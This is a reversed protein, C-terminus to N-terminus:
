AKPRQLQLRTPMTVVVDKRGYMFEAGVACDDLRKIKYDHLNGRTVGHLSWIVLFSATTTIISTEGNDFKAPTFSLDSVCYRAVDQPKLTLRKPCEKLSGLRGRFGSCEANGAPLLLLSNATTALVWHGSPSVEISTIGEGLGPFMNMAVAGAEKYLRIEGHMSGVALGGTVSSGVTSFLYNQKYTKARAVKSTESLRPDMLAVTKPSVVYFTPDRTQAGYKKSPALDQIKMKAEALWEDVVQGREVDLNYVFQRNKSLILLNYDQNYLQMTEASLLGGDLDHLAPMDFLRKLTDQQAQYISIVAGRAVFTRDYQVSQTSLSNVEDENFDSDCVEWDVDELSDSTHDALDPYNVSSMWKVEEAKLAEEVTKGRGIEFLGHMIQSKLQDAGEALKVLRCRPPEGEEVWMLEQADVDIHYVFNRTLRNKIYVSTDRVLEIAFEGRNQKVLAFCVNPQNLTNDGTLTDHDYLHAASVYLLQELSYLNQLFLLVKEKPTFEARTAVLLNHEVPNTRQADAPLSQLGDDECYVEIDQDSIPKDPQSLQHIARCVSLKFLQANATDGFEVGVFKARVPEGSLDKWKFGSIQQDDILQYSTLDMSFDIPFELRQLDDQDGTYALNVVEIVDPRVIVSAEIFLCKKKYNNDAYLFQHLSCPLDSGFLVRKLWSLM